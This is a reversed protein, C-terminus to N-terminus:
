FRVVCNYFVVETRSGRHAKLPIIHSSPTAFLMKIRDGICKYSLCTFLEDCVLCIM